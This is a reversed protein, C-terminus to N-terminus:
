SLWVLSTESAQMYRKKIAPLDFLVRAEGMLRLKTSINGIRVGYLGPRISEVGEGDVLSLVQPQVTLHVQASQGPELHIREFAFLEKLPANPDTSNIFGMVVEDGAMKGTNTVNVTYVIGQDVASDTSCQIKPSQSPWSYSFSTYSMGFGFEWLPSGTYYRYTIGGNSRLGMDIMSRKQAFDAPYITYPLRGGPSIKGLLIDSIADGGMEGPYFAEVIAHVNDKVWEIALPGGNILVVVTPKGTGVVSQILQLQVGPLDLITRDHGEREQTQDLGVFVLAVDSSKVLNVADAIKSTDNDAINCGVSYKVKGDGLANVLAQYPSHSNVLTNTGHYNSLMDQTANGHPGVVAAMSLKSPDLPLIGDDNKLLVILQRAAEYALQRSAETDVDSPGLRKYSILDPPDIGGLRIFAKYIRTIATNVAEEPVAGSQVAKLLNQGYFSGCNLDTGGLVGARCTSDSNNTYHHGTMIGGVAGCDSVFFGDFGWEGRAIDNQLISNACSPIGNVANYSCMISQVHAREICSRFPIWYYEVLDREDVVANFSFRNSGNWNEMDYASFHKCTSVVKLYRDADIEQLGSSYHAVYEGTLYPDEGPVEQGRGWRPDRFLNVDPAWFAQGTVGQNNLARAETSVTRGAELWLSSNFTAGLGLASPFSTPCGTSGSAAAGCGSLVGHLCEAFRFKDVGLRPVGPNNNQMNEVKEALTMRSVLDKARTEADLTVNCYPYTSYPEVTCNIATGADLCLSQNFSYRFTMDTGNYLFKQNGAGTCPAMQMNTGSINGSNEANACKGNM